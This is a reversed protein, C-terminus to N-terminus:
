RPVEMDPSTPALVSRLADLLREFSAAEGPLTIRVAQELGPRGTFRRLGIGLAAAGDVLREPDDVDCLVFNAQSPLPHAGLHRLAGILADRERRVEDVFLRLESEDADLRAEAVICSVSSVPYPVGFAAVRAVVEPDGLLYGVRMGALGYAKSLTRIVVVNPMELAAQTPDHDAFEAYAADLVVFPAAAALSNLDEATIVAGTPNNPSVVVVADTAPTTAAIVEATPYPGSRWWVGTLQSGRQAAYLPLMEFAPQTTVVERGDGVLAFFCRHLADDGGATVLVRDTDVSSLRALRARVRSTDPYRSVARGPDDVAALLDAKPARGENKSLDLDIPYRFPPPAYVDPQTM